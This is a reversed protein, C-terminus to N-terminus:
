HLDYVRNVQFRYTECDPWEESLSKQTARMACGWDTSTPSASSVWEEYAANMDRANDFFAALVTRYELALTRLQSKSLREANRIRLDFGRSVEALAQFVISGNQMATRM